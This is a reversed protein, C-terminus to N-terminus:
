LIPTDVYPDVHICGSGPTSNSLEHVHYTSGCVQWGYDHQITDWGHSRLRTSMVEVQNPPLCHVAWDSGRIEDVMVDCLPCSLPCRAVAAAIM